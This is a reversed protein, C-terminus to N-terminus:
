LSLLAIFAGMALAILFTRVLAASVTGEKNAKGNSPNHVRSGFTEFNDAHDNFYARFTRYAMSTKM